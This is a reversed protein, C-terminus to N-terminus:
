AWEEKTATRRNSHYIVERDGEGVVTVRYEDMPIGSPTADGRINDVISISAEVRPTFPIRKVYSGQHHAGTSSNTRSVFDDIFKRRGLTPNSGCGRGGAFNTNEPIRPIDRQVRRTNM